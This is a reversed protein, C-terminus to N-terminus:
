AAIADTFPIPAWHTPEFVIEMSKPDIFACECTWVGDRYSGFKEINPYTCRDHRVYVRDGSKPPADASIWDVQPELNFISM